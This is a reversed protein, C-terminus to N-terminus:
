YATCVCFYRKPNDVLFKKVLKEAEAIEYGRRVLFSKFRDTWKTIIFRIGPGGEYAYLDSRRALDGGLLIQDAFGAEVLTAIAEMRVSEPFYKVKSLGDMCLFAGSQAIQELYWPDPNRLLHALGVHSLDVKEDLLIEIQELAM